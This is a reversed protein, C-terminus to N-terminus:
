IQGSPQNAELRSKALHMVTKVALETPLVPKAILDEGGPLAGKASSEFDVLATVYIVPTNKHNPLARLRQYFEFGDIGPLGIDLLVLDYRGEQLWQLGTLPDQTSRAELHAQRLAAVVLRNSLADDDVVLVQAPSLPAAQADAGPQLLRELFEIALRTTRMVSPTLREPKDMMQFLMAEFASAVQALLLCGAMGATAVLFHLKRYLAELRLAREKENRAESFSQFLQRIATRTEAAHRFFDERANEKFATDAAGTPASPPATVLAHAPTPAAPEKPRAAPPTPAPTAVLPSPKASSAADEVVERLCAALLAPKCEVKILAKQAGIAAAERALDDMYANSLVVVPLHELDAQGRIFKLVEVGSFNPMMLDLVVVDPRAQRLAKVAALGGGALMVEMGHQKLGRQYIRLVFPDDDVLLVKMM